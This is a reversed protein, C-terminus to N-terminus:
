HVYLPDPVCLCRREHMRAGGEGVGVQAGTDNSPTWVVGGVVRGGGGLVWRGGGTGGVRVQAGTDNSPTWVFDVCPRGAIYLDDRCSPIAPIPSGVSEHVATFREQLTVFPPPPTLTTHHPESHRWLAEHRHM